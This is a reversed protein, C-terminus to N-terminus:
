NLRLTMAGYPVVFTDDKRVTRTASVPGVFLIDGTATTLVGHTITGWEATAPGFMYPGRTQLITGSSGTNAPDFDVQQRMYGAGLMPENLEEGDDKPDTDSLGLYVQRPASPAAQGRLWNLIIKGLYHSIHKSLQLQVRDKAFSISDGAPASRPVNLEGHFLLNGDSDFIAAYSLTSWQSSTVPGFVVPATNFISVGAGETAIPAAFTLTQRAYGSSEPPELMAYGGEGPSTASLAITLAGPPPPLDIGLVYAVIREQLYASLHM